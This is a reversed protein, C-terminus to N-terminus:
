LIRRLVNVAITIVVSIVIMSTLPVYVRVNDGGIRIDGPLRGFWSFAGAWVLVGVIVVGIGGIILLTGLGKSTM